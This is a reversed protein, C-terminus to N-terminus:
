KKAERLLEDQSINIENKGYLDKLFEICPLKDNLTLTIAYNYASLPKGLTQNYKYNHADEFNKFHVYRKALKPYIKNTKEIQEWIKENVTWMANKHGNDNYESDCDHVVTHKIGFHTLIKQYFILNAKSGTNLVFVERENKFFTDILHRYIIAETDGEVLIVEDAYFAECVHPNFRNIMQLNNKEDNEFINLKVQYTKTKNTEEDKVLRILSSHSKSLDIMLPSHTACLVQCNPKEAINYLENRLTFITSPHLYLEPEEYLIIYNTENTTTSLFSFLAQRLVGHGNRLIDISNIKDKIEFGHTSKLTKSLDIGETPKPYINVDLKPFIKKFQNNMKTQIYSIDSAKTIDDKLKQLLSIVQEYSEKYENELKKIHNKTIIDNIKNELEEPTTIANVYIPIPSYKTLLTDFGGFGGAVFKKEKPKYSYKQGDGLNSWEKKITIIGNEDGYEKIWKPEDEPSEQKYKAIIRIPISINKNSYDEEKAKSKSNIFFEYAQLFTSKGNNNNGILFLLDMNEFSIINDSGILGRFNEVQLEILKM